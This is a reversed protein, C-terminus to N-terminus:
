LIQLVDPFHTVRFGLYQVIYLFPPSRPSFIADESIQEVEYQLGYDSM